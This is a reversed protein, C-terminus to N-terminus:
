EGLLKKKSLAPDEAEAPDSGFLINSSLAARRRKMEENDADRDTDAKSKVEETNIKVPEVKKPKKGGGFLGGM